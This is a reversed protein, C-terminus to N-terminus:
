KRYSFAPCDLQKLLTCVHTESLENYAQSATSEVKKQGYWLGVLEYVVSSEQAWRHREESYSFWNIELHTKCVYFNLIRVTNM